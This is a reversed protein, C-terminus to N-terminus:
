QEGRSRKIRKERRAIKAELVTIHRQLEWLHSALDTTKHEPASSSLADFQARAFELQLELPIRDVPRLRRQRTLLNSAM